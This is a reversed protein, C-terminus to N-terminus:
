FSYGSHRLFGNALTPSRRIRALGSRLATTAEGLHASCRNALESSKVNGFVAEVPNLDPSYGPLREVTLWSRQSDIFELMARSKHAPLGDWILITPRWRRHRGLQRLFTILSATDYTGPRTQFWLRTQKGDWRYGLAVAVSARKWNFAHTLIPTQGRPAWTRRVVPQQSIGSEDAFVIWARRRRANKKGQGLEHDGM